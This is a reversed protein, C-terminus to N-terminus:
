KVKGHSGDCFPKNKSLNCSCLFCKESSKEKIVNGEKDQIEYDGEVIFPTNEKFKIITTM